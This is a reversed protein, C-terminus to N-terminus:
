LCHTNTLPGALAAYDPIYDILETPNYSITYIGYMQLPQWTTLYLRMDDYPFEFVPTSFALYTLSNRFWYTSVRLILFLTRLLALGEKM